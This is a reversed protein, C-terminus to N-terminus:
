RLTIKFPGTATQKLFAVEQATLKRAKRLRAGVVRATSVESGGGPGKWDLVVREATVFGEVAEAMDTLWSARRMEGESVIDLGVEGQKRLANEIARDEISKLAEAQIRGQSFESRAALLEPPRLLSRFQEARYGPKM